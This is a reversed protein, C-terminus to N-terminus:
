ALLCKKCVTPHFVGVEQKEWKGCKGCKLEIRSLAKPTM